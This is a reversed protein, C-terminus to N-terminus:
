FHSENEVSADSDGVGTLLDVAPATLCLRHNSNTTQTTSLFLPSAPCRFIKLICSLCAKVPSGTQQAAFKMKRLDLKWKLNAWM